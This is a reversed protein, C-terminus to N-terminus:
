WPAGGLSASWRYSDAQLEFPRVRGVTRDLTHGTFMRTERQEDPSLSSVALSLVNVGAVATDTKLLQQYRSDPADLKAKGTSVAALWRVTADRSAGPRIPPIGPENAVPASDVHDIITQIAMINIGGQPPARNTSSQKALQCAHTYRRAVSVYARRILRNSKPM